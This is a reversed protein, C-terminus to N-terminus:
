KEDQYTGDCDLWVCVAGLSMGENRQDADPKRDGCKACVLM